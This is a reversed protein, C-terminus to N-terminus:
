DLSLYQLKWKGSGSIQGKFSKNTELLTGFRQFFYVFSCLNDTSIVNVCVKSLVTANIYLYNFNIDTNTVKLDNNIKKELGLPYNHNAVDDHLYSLWM